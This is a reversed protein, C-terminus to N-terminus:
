SVIENQKIDSLLILRLKSVRNNNPVVNVPSPLKQVNAIFKNHTTVDSNLCLISHLLNILILLQAFINTMNASSHERECESNLCSWNCFFEKEHIGFDNFLLTFTVFQKLSALLDIQFIHQRQIDNNNRGEEERQDTIVM